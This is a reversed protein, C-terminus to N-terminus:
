RKFQAKKLWFFLFKFVWVTESKSIKSILDIWQEGFFIQIIFRLFYFTTIFTTSNLPWSKKNFRIWTEIYLINLLFFSGRGFRDGLLLNSFTMRKVWGTEMILTLLGISFFFFFFDKYHYLLTLNVNLFTTLSRILLRIPSSTM